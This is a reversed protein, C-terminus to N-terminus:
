KDDEEIGEEELIKKKRRKIIKLAWGVDHGADELNELVSQCERAFLLSYIVNGLVVIAGAVLSVRYSLGVMIFVILYDVIKRSTGVWMSNSNIKGTKISNLLGGNLAAISYYKTLIDIIMMVLVACFAALYAQEPFLVYNLVAIFFAWVPKVNELASELYERM